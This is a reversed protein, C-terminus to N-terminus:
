QKIIERLEQHLARTVEAEYSGAAIRDPSVAMIKDQQIWYSECRKLAWGVMTLVLLSCVTCLAVVRRRLGSMVRLYPNRLFVGKGGNWLLWLIAPIWCAFAFGNLMFFSFKMNMVFPMAHLPLLVLMFAIWGLRLHWRSRFPALHAWPATFRYVLLRPLLLLLLAVSFAPFFPFVFAYRPGFEKGTLPTYVSLLLYYLLPALATLLVLVVMSRLPIAQWGEDSIKLLLKNRRMLLHFPILLVLLLCLATVAIRLLFAHDVYRLPALDAKTIPQSLTTQQDLTPLIMSTLMSGHLNIIDNSKQKRKEQLKMDQQALAANRKEWTEILKPELASCDVVQIQKYLIRLSARTILADVLTAPEALILREVYVDIDRLLQQGKESQLDANQVSTSLLQTLERSNSSSPHSGLYILPLIHDLYSTRQKLLPYRKKHMAIEYSDYKSQKLSQRWLDLAEQARTADLIAYEYIMKRRMFIRDAYPAKAVTAANVPSRPHVKGKKCVDRAKIEAAVCTFWANDPDIKAAIKLFDPPLSGNDSIYHLSYDAFYAPNKPDSEWLARMQQAKGIRNSNGYLLLEDEPTTTRIKTIINPPSSNPFNLAFM